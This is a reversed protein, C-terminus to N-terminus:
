WIDGIRSPRQPLLFLLSVLAFPMEAFALSGMFYTHLSLLFIVSALLASWRPVWRLALLYTLAACGMLMLQYAFRLWKGVVVLDSTGLLHQQAAIFLPLLPPYQVEQPDGPESLLRYGKGEALSTGLIYYVGADWRLDIPGRMWPIWLALALVMLAAL